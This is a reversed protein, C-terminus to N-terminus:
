MEQAANKQIPLRREKALAGHASQPVPLEIGSKEAALGHVRLTDPIRMGIHHLELAGCERLGRINIEAKIGGFEAAGGRMADRCPFFRPMENRVGGVARQSIGTDAQIVRLENRSLRRM